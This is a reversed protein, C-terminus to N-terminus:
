LFNFNSIVKKNGYTKLIDAKGLCLYDCYKLSHNGKNAKNESYNSCDYNSKIELPKM